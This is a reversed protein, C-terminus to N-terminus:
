RALKREVVALTPQRFFWQTEQLYPRTGSLDERGDREIMARVEAARAPPTQCNALWRGLNQVLEDSYLRNPELGAATFLGAAGARAPATTRGAQPWGRSPSRM